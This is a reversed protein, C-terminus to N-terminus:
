LPDPRVCQDEAPPSSPQAFPADGFHERYLRDLDADADDLFARFRQILQQGDDTLRSGGGAQGGTRRHMLELQLHHEAQRIVRWAKSYSMGMMGAAQHLSGTEEVLVLLDFIGPGFLPEGAEHLFVRHGARVRPQAETPSPSRAARERRQQARRERRAGPAPDHAKESRTMPQRSAAGM